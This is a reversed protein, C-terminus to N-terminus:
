RWNFYRQFTTNYQASLTHVDNIYIIEIRWMNRRLYLFDDDPSESYWILAM